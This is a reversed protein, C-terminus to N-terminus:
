TLSNVTYGPTVDLPGYNEKYYAEAKPRLEAFLDYFAHMEPSPPGAAITALEGAIEAEDHRLYVGDKVMIEGSVMVTDVHEPQALRM